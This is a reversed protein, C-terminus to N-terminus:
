TVWDDSKSMGIVLSPYGHSGYRVVVRFMHSLGMVRAVVVLIGMSCARSGEIGTASNGNSGWRMDVDGVQVMHVRVTVQRM